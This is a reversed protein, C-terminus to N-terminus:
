LFRLLDIRITNLGINLTQVFDSGKLTSSRSWMLICKLDWSQYWFKELGGILLIKM